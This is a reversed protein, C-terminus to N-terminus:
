LKLGYLGKPKAYFWKEAIELAEGKSMLGRSVREGLVRAINERAMVLHGYVKEVPKGYDGGFGSIKNIPVLDVWEKLTTVTMEPSVIHSWCLNLWVNPFNKGILGAERVWPMGMHYMDFRTEPHSGFIRIMHKPDLERFDGWVGTHVAVVLGLEAAIDLLEETLYDRLPNMEDIRAEPNRRLQDYIAVAKGRDPPQYPRSVMKIGVTGQDMWKRLGMRAAELYDDLTEVGAGTETARDQINKWTRVQAWTDLPMLPILFDLDYDTRGAQTLAARINCLDVLIRRYIGPKNEAQLIESIEEYNDKTIDEFGLHQAYLFAPRAYSGHRIDGLFRSLIRWRSRLAIDKNHMREWQRQKMGACIFDTRTYHIFLDCVDMKQSTRIREPALHEHADVVPIESFAEYLEQETSGLIM